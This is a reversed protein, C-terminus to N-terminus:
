AALMKRQEQWGQYPTMHASLFSPSVHSKSAPWGLVALLSREVTWSLHIRATGLAQMEKPNFYGGHTLKNRIGSLSLGDRRDGGGVPWLDDTHVGYLDCFRSYTTSVSPRNLERLKGLLIGREETYGSLAHHNSVFAKLDKLVSKWDKARLIGAENQRLIILALIAIAVLDKILECWDQRSAPDFQAKFDVEATEGQVAELNCAPMTIM